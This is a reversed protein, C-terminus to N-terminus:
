RRTTTPRSFFGGSERDAFHALMVDTLEIAWALADADWRAELLELLGWALLAYDDLSPPSARAARPTCPWCAATAALLAPAPLRMAAAAADVLDARELARGARALGAIAMGNWGVLIKEDRAPRM